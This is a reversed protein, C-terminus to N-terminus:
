ELTFWQVEVRRNLEPDPGGPEEWGRGVMEVRSPDLEPFRTLLQTRVEEARKSSLEIAKLAMKQVLAQGGQQLFEAKRGDDVHGRLLVISGPSVGLLRHVDILLKDNEGNAMDLRHDNPLFFFRIDRTLLPDNELSVQETTKVPQISAVQGSLQGGQEIAKLASLDAFFSSAVPRPLLEAGYALNASQYVSAFSGAEDIAGNFFALNEPLNSLHVRSLEDKADEETWEYGAFAKALAAAHADPNNRIEQNKILTGEVIKEVMEPHAGAFAKNFLLIDAVILLNRNDVLQRAKGQSSEVIETTKPAWTVCGALKGAGSELDALFADGAEFADELFVLNIADAKPAADLGDLREVPTGSENALYRIFFEAESFPATAVRKGKLDNIRRIDKSVIIGDAGRSWAIQMPVVTQWQRGYNALVDVTTATAAIRGQQLDDWSDEESLTIKLKFGGNKTFWSEDNPELGNNALILGAYGAYESLNIVVTNDAPQYTQAPSLKPAPGPVLFDFEDAGSAGGTSVTADSHSSDVGGGGQPVPAHNMWRYIGFAAVVLVILTFFLKGIKTM